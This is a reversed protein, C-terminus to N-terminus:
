VIWHLCTNPLDIFSNFRKNFISDLLKREMLLDVEDALVKLKYDRYAQWQLYASLSSAVTFLVRRQLLLGELM